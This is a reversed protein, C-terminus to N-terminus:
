DQGKLRNLNVERRKKEGWPTRHPRLSRLNRPTSYLDAHAEVRYSMWVKNAVRFTIWFMKTAIALEVNGCNWVYHKRTKITHM